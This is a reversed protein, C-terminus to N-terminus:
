RSIGGSLAPSDQLADPKIITGVDFKSQTKGKSKLLAATVSPTAKANSQSKEPFQKLSQEHAQKAASKETKHDQYAIGGSVAGGALAGSILSGYVGGLLVAGFPLATGFTVLPAIIAAATLAAVGLTAARRKLQTKVDKQIVSRESTAAAKGAYEALRDGTLGLKGAEKYEAQDQADQIHARRGFIFPASERAYGKAEEGREQIRKAEETLDKRDLFKNVSGFTQLSSVM